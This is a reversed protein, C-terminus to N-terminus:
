GELLSMVLTFFSMGTKIFWTFTPLSLTVSGFIYIPMRQSVAMNFILVNIKHNRDYLYWKETVALELKECENEVKQGLLCFMLVVLIFCFEHVFYKMVDASFIVDSVAIKVSCMCVLMIAVLILTLYFPQCIINLRNTFRKIKVYHTICQKFIETCCPQWNEEKGEVIQTSLDNLNQLIFTIIRLQRITQGVLLIIMSQLGPYAICCLYGAYAHFLFSAIYVNFNELSWPFWMDFALLRLSNDDSISMQYIPGCLYLTATLWVSTVYVKLLIRTYYFLKDQSNIVLEKLDNLKGNKENRLVYEIFPMDLMGDEFVMESLFMHFKKRFLLCVGLSIFMIVGTTWICAGQIFLLMNNFHVIAFASTFIFTLFGIVFNLIQLLLWRKTSRSTKSFISIGAFSLVRHFTRFTEEM